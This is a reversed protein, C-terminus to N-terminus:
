PAPWWGTSRPIAALRGDASAFWLDLPRSTLRAASLRHFDAPAVGSLSLCREGLGHAVGLELIVDARTEEPDLATPAYVVRAGDDGRDPLTGVIADLAAGASRGVVLVFDAHEPGAPRAGTNFRLYDRIESAGPDTVHFTVDRDLVALLVACAPRLDAPPVVLPIEGLPLVSGPRSIADLLCRSIASGAFLPDFCMERFAADRRM